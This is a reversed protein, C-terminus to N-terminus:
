SSRAPNLTAAAMAAIAQARRELRVRVILSAILLLNAVNFWAGLLFAIRYGGTIDYSVGGLWAGIAMGTGGCLIVLGTRRGAEAPPLYERVIIPYCPLIGGYGLGFLVGVVYLANIDTVFALVTLFTAQASSFVFIAKLGGFRGALFGVGFFSGCAAALLMLSLIQAGEARDYGLDTVHSVLHALPLSMAVCCGIAAVALTLQMRLPSLRPKGGAPGKRLVSAPATSPPPRLGLILALPIMTALAFLGYYLSSERWGYILFMHHFVPPWIAGALAQGSGVIGVATTRHKEFWRTINATLPSFLAARGLYGMMVGYIFYLQWQADIWSTFVAGLGIMAGGVLAPIAMGFRDLVWGMFIGGFGGGLYQLAYATSPVTRPWDFEAAMAKLAVVLFYISGTGILMFLLSAVLVLGRKVNYGDSM